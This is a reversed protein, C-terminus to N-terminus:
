KDGSLPGGQAAWYTPPTEITDMKLPIGHKLAVKMADNYMSPAYTYRETAYRRAMWQIDIIM